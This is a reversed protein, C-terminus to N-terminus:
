SPFHEGHGSAACSLPGDESCIACSCCCQGWSASWRIDDSFSHLAVVDFQVGSVVLQVGVLVVVTLWLEEPVIAAVAVLLLIPLPPLSAVGPSHPHRCLHPGPKAHFSM